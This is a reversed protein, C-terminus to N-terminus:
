HREKCYRYRYRWCPYARLTGEPTREEKDNEKEEKKDEKPEKNKQEEQKKKEERVKKQEEVIKGVEIQQKILDSKIMLIATVIYIYSIMNYAIEFYKITFGTFLNVIMYILTMIISFTIAYVSMNFILRYEFKIGVIKSVLFGVLSLLLIDLLFKSICIIYLYTFVMIIFVIYIKVMNNGNYFQLIKEKNINSLDYKQSIQKYSISNEIDESNTIVIRDKLVAIVIQYNNIEEIENINETKTDIIWGFYGSQDGQVLRETEGEIVLKNDQISVEPIENKFYTILKNSKDVLKFTLLITILVTFFYLSLPFNVM